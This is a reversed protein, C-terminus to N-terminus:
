QMLMKRLDFTRDLFEVKKVGLHGRGLVSGTTVHRELLECTKTKRASLPSDASITELVRWPFIKDGMEEVDFLHSSIWSYSPLGRVCRSVERRVSITDGTRTMDSAIGFLDWCHVFKNALRLDRIMSPRRLGLELGILDSGDVWESLQVPGNRHEWTVRGAHIAERLEASVGLKDLRGWLFSLNMDLLKRRDYVGAFDHARTLLRGDLRYKHQNYQFEGLSLNYPITLAVGDATELEKLIAALWPSDSQDWFMDTHQVYVWRSTTGFKVAWDLLKLHVGHEKDAIPSKLVRLPVTQRRFARVLREPPDKTVVFALDVQDMPTGGTQEINSCVADVFFPYDGVPVLLTLM